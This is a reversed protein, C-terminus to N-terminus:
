EISTFPLSCIKCNAGSFQSIESRLLMFLSGEINKISAISAVSATSIGLSKISCAALLTGHKCGMCILSSLLEIRKICFLILMNNLAVASSLYRSKM